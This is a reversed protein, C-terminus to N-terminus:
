IAYTYRAMIHVPDIMESSSSNLPKGKQSRLMTYLTSYSGAVHREGIEHGSVTESQGYQKKGGTGQVCCM